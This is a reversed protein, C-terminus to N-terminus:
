DNYDQDHDYHEVTFSTGNYDIQAPDGFKEQLLVEHHDIENGLTKLLKCVEPFLVEDIEYESFYGDGYDGEEDYDEDPNDPFIVKVRPEGVSFYCPDGDNFYPTYQEWRISDVSDLEVLADLAALLRAPEHQELHRSRTHRNVEGHIPKGLLDTM